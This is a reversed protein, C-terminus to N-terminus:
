DQPAYREQNSYREFYFEGSFLKLEIIGYREALRVLFGAKGTRLRRPILMMEKRWKELLWSGKYFNCSRCAPMLNDLYERRETMKRMHERAVPILHDVQMDKYRLVCGCYACRRGYKNWVQIRVEKKIAKRKRM